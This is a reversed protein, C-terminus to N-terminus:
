KGVSENQLASRESNTGGSESHRAPEAHLFATINKDATEEANGAFASESERQDRTHALEANANGAEDGPLPDLAAAKETPGRARSVFSGGAPRHCSAVGSFAPYSKRKQYFQDACEVLDLGPRDSRRSTKKIRAHGRCRRLRVSLLDRVEDM